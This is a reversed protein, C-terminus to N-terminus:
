TTVREVDGPMEGLTRRLRKEANRLHARMAAQAKRPDRAIIAELVRRHEVNSSHTEGAAQISRTMWVELLSTINSLVDTLATNGAARGIAAHFAIDTAVFEAGPGHDDMQEVLAGIEHAQEDTRRRAALGALSFEIEQRAEVLDMVRREGLFLGWEIVRPLLESGSSKLYTGAGQRIELIGLLGLSQIAERVAGRSVGLSEALQRESPIRSGGLLDGSFFYKTLARIIESSLEGSPDIRTLGVAPRPATM